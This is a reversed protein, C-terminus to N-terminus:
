KLTGLIPYEKAEKKKKKETEKELMALAKGTKDLNSIHIVLFNCFYKRPLYPINQLLEKFENCVQLLEMDGGM